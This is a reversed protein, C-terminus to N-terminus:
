ACDVRLFPGEKCSSPHARPFGSQYSPFTASLPRTIRLRSTLRGRPSPAFGTWVTLLNDKGAELKTSRIGSRMVRSTPIPQEPQPLTSLPCPHRTPFQTLKRPTLMKPSTRSLIIRINSAQDLEPLHSCRTSETLGIKWLPWDLATISVTSHYHNFRYAGCRKRKDNTRLVPGDVKRTLRCEHNRRICLKCKEM